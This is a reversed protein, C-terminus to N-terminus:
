GSGYGTIFESPSRFPILSHAPSAEGRKAEDWLTSCRARPLQPSTLSPPTHCGTRTTPTPSECDDNHLGVNVGASFAHGMKCSRAHIAIRTRLNLLRESAYASIKNSGRLIQIETKKALKVPAAIYNFKNETHAFSISTGSIILFAFM